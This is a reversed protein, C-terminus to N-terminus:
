VEANVQTVLTVTIEALLKEDHCVAWYFHFIVCKDDKQVMVEFLITVSTSSRM